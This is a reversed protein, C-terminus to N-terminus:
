LPPVGLPSLLSKIGDTLKTVNFNFILIQRAGSLKLYTMAQASHIPLLKEVSKVEVLLWDGVLLDARYSCDIRVGKYLVPIQVETKYSLDRSALEFGMCRGYTSELLGPGLERHVDMAAGIVAQALPHSQLSMGVQAAIRAGLNPPGVRENVACRPPM